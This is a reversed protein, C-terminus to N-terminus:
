TINCKKGEDLANTAACTQFNQINCSVGQGQKRSVYTTIIALSIWKYIYMYVYSNQDFYPYKYIYETIHHIEKWSHQWWINPVLYKSSNMQHRQSVMQPNLILYYPLRPPNPVCCKNVKATWLHSTCQLKKGNWSAFRWFAGGRTVLAGMKTGLLKSSNSECMSCM